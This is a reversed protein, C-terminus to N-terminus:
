NNLYLYDYHILEKIDKKGIQQIASDSDYQSKGCGLLNKKEDFIKIIDGTKFSGKIETVGILLLSSAKNSLLVVKASIYRAKQM